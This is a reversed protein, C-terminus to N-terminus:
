RKSLLIFSLTWRYLFNEELDLSTVKEKGDIEYFLLIFKPKLKRYSDIINM